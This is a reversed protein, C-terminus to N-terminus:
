QILAKVKKIKIILAGRAWPFEKKVLEAMTGEQQVEGSGSFRYGQGKNGDARQVESSAMLLQVDSNKKLNEETQFYKGAPLLIIGGDQIGMKRLRYGWAAVTHPGSESATTISIWETKEVVEKCKEDLKM